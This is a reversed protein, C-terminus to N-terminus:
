QYSSCIVIGEVERGFLQIKQKEEQRWKTGGNTEDGSDLHEQQRLLVFYSGSKGAAVQHHIHSMRKQGSSLPM